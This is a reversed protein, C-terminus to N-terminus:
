KTINADDLGVRASANLSLDAFNRKQYQIFGESAIMAANDTCMSRPPLICKLGARKCDRELVARLYGNAVVGGGLLMGVLVIIFSIKQNLM